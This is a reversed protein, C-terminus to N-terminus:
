LRGPKRSFHPPEPYGVLQFQSVLQQGQHLQFLRWFDAQAELLYARSLPGCDFPLLGLDLALQRVKDKDDPSDGCYFTQVGWSRLRDPGHHFLEVPHLCFAKVVQCLPISEALQQALSSERPKFEFGLPLEPQNCDIVTKGSWGSCLEQPEVGRLSFLLVPCQEVVQAYSGHGCQNELALAEAKEPMGSAFLVEHGAEAWFKGLTAGMNGCGLIGIKM